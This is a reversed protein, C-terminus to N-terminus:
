WWLLQQPCCLSGQTMAVPSECCCWGSCVNNFSLIKLCGVSCYISPIDLGQSRRARPAPGATGGGGQNLHGLAHVTSHMTILFSCPPSTSSRNTLYVRKSSVGIIKPVSPHLSTTYLCSSFARGMGGRGQAVVRSLLSSSRRM